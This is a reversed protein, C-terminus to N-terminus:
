ASTIYVAFTDDQNPDSSLAEYALGLTAAITNTPLTVTQYVIETQGLSNGMSLFQSGDYPTGSQSNLIEAGTGQLVWPSPSANEFGGNEILQTTAFASTLFLFSGLCFVSIVSFIRRMDGNYDCM